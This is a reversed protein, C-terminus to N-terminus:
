SKKSVLFISCRFSNSRFFAHNYRYYKFSNSTKLLFHRMLQRTKRLLQHTM